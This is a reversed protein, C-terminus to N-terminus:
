FPVNNKLVSIILEREQPTIHYDKETLYTREWMDDHVYKIIEDWRDKTMETTETSSM